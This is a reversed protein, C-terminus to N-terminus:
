RIVTAGGSWIYAPASGVLTVWWKGNGSVVEGDKINSVSFTEGKTLQKIVISQTNPASRVNLVDTIVRITTPFSDAPTTTTPQVGCQRTGLTSVGNVYYPTLTPSPNNPISGGCAYWGTYSCCINANSPISVPAPTTASPAKVFRWMAPDPNTPNLNTFGLSKALDNLTTSTGMSLAWAFVSGPAFTQFNQDLLASRNVALYNTLDIQENSTLSSYLLVNAQSIIQLIRSTPTISAPVVPNSVVGGTVQGSTRSALTSQATSIMGRLINLTNTAWTSISGASLGSSSGTGGTTSGGTSGGGSDGSNGGGCDTFYYYNLGTNSDVGPFGVQRATCTQGTRMSQELAANAAATANIRAPRCPGTTEVGTCYMITQNRGNIFASCQGSGGLGSISGTMTGVICQNDPVTGTPTIPTGGAVTYRRNFEADIEAQRKARAEDIDTPNDMSCGSSSTCYRGSVTDYYIGNGNDQMAGNTIPIFVFAFLVVFFLGFLKYKM